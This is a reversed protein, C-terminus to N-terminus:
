GSYWQAVTSRSCTVLTSLTGISLSLCITNLLSRTKVSCEHRRYLTSLGKPCYLVNSLGIIHMKQEMLLCISGFLVTFYVNGVVVVDFWCWVIFVSSACHNNMCYWCAVLMKNISQRVNFSYEFPCISPAILKNTGGKINLRNFFPFTGSVLKTLESTHLIKTM